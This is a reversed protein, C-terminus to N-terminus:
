DDDLEDHWGSKAWRIEAEIEEPTRGPVPPFKEMWQRILEPSGLPPENDIKVIKVTPKGRKAIVVEEGAVAADILKSLQNRAELVNYQM